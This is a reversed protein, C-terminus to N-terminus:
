HSTSAPGGVLNTKDLVDRQIQARSYYRRAGPRLVFSKIVGCEILQAIASNTFHYRGMWEMVEGYRLNPPVENMASRERGM